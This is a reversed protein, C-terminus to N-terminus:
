PKRRGLRVMKQPNSYAKLKPIRAPCNNYAETVDVRIIAQAEPWIERTEDTPNEVYADGNIRARQQDQFDIFLMGIHPNLHLNGLSNYYGNGSFDPFILTKPDLLQLLAQPRGTKSVNRGRFNADCEGDDNATAIFFFSQKEIFGTLTSNVHDAMIVSLKQDNINHRNPFRKRMEIEGAHSIHPPM